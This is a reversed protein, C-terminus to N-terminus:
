SALATSHTVASFFQTRLRDAGSICDNGDSDPEGFASFRREDARDRLRRRGRCICAIFTPKKPQSCSLLERVTTNYTRLLPDQISYDYVSIVAGEDEALHNLLDQIGFNSCRGLSPSNTTARHLLPIRFLRSLADALSEADTLLTVDDQLLSLLEPELRILIKLKSSDRLRTVLRASTNM